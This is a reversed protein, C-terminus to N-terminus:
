RGASPRGAGRWLGAPGRQPRPHHGRRGGQVLQARHLAPQRHGPRRPDRPQRGRGRSRAPAVDSAGEPGTLGKKVLENQLHYVLEGNEAHVTPMAGLELCRAFSKVLNEDPVMIANKYAMFHKFSNVGKERALTGMDEYVQDSWWTVAVHFSYDACSKEAWSRWEDYASM